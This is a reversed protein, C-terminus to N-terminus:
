SQSVKDCTYARTVVVLIMVYLQKMERFFGEKYVRGLGAIRIIWTVVSRREDKYKTRNLINYFYFWVVYITMIIWYTYDYVMYGRLNIKESLM